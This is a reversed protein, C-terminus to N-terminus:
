KTDIPCQMGQLESFESKPNYAVSIRPSTCWFLEILFIFLLACEYPIFFTPPLFRCTWWNAFLYYIHNRCQFTPWHLSIPLRRHDWNSLHMFPQKNHHDLIYVFTHYLTNTYKYYFYCKFYLLLFPKRPFSKQNKETVKTNKVSYQLYSNILM